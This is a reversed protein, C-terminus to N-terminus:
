MRCCEGKKARLLGKRTLVKFDKDARKRSEPKRLIKGDRRRTKISLLGLQYLQSRLEESIEDFAEMLKKEPLAGFDNAV